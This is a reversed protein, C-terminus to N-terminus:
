YLPLCARQLRHHVPLDQEARFLSGFAECAEPLCTAHPFNRVACAARASPNSAGRRPIKRATPARGARGRWKPAAEVHQPVISRAFIEPPHSMILVNVRPRRHSRGTTAQHQSTSSRRSAIYPNVLFATVGIPPRKKDTAIPQFYSFAVVCNRQQICTPAVGTLPGPSSL